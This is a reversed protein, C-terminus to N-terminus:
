KACVEGSVKTQGLAIYSPPNIKVQFKPLVTFLQVILFHIHILFFKSEFHNIFFSHVSNLPSFYSSVTPVILCQLSFLFVDVNSLM